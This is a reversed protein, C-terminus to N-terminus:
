KLQKNINIFESLFRVRNSKPKPQAFPPAGWSSGNALELVLIQVLREVDKKFMEKHLKPVPYPLSFIPEVGEKLKFGVSYTEWNGLTVYLFYKFKHLLKLM